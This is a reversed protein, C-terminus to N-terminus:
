PILGQRHFTDLRERVRQDGLREAVVRVSRDAHGEDLPYLERRYRKLARVAGPDAARLRRLLLQLARRCDETRRDALGLAAAEDAALEEAGLAMAYARHRGVREAVTPLIAAPVLGLLVETMRFSAGPGAIVHDCAAALGVGGGTAVGDVVAVTVLPSDTLRRLLDHVATLRPRWDAQDLDGLAIGSCFTDGTADIVFVTASDTREAQELAGALEALLEDDLRNRTAPSDLTARVVPPRATDVRVRAAAGSATVAM